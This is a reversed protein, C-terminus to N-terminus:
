NDLENQQLWFLRGRRQKNRRLIRICKQEKEISMVILARRAEEIEPTRFIKGELSNKLQDLLEIVRELQELERLEDETDLIERRKKDKRYLPWLGEEPISIWLEEMEGHALLDELKEREIDSEAIGIKKNM